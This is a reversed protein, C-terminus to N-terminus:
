EKLKVSEKNYFDKVAENIWNNPDYTLDSNVLLRPREKLREVEVNKINEDKYMKIREDMQEKYIKAEGTQISKFAIYSNAKKYNVSIALIGILIIIIYCYKYDNKTETIEIKNCIYGLWYFVNIIILWYMSYYVICLLRLPFNGGQAYLVPTLQAAFIGYTIITIILPAKFKYDIKKILKIMVPILAIFFTINVINLWNGLLKKGLKLSKTIADIENMKELQAAQRIANGPAKASILLGTLCILLIIAVNVGKKNKQIILVFEVVALIMCCVLATCYNSTGICFALFCAIITNLKKTNEEKLIVLIKGILILLISYFFTYYISGNFWYFSEVPYPVFQISLTILSLAVILFLNRSCNLYDKMIIKMLYINSIVFISILFITSIFYYQEGFIAPQITMLFVATFSGQWEIFTKQTKEIGTKIVEIFSHTEEWKKHTEIGYSYDDASPNNFKSIYIMPLLILIFISIILVTLLNQKNIKKM